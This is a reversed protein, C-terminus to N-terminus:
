KQKKFIYGKSVKNSKWKNNIMVETVIPYLINKTMLFKYRYLEPISESHSDDKEVIILTDKSIKYKGKFTYDLECDYNVIVNNSKFTFVDFHKKSVECLWRTNVLPDIFYSCIIATVALLLIRM